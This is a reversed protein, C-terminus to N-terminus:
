DSGPSPSHSVLSDETSSLYALALSMFIPDEIGSLRLNCRHCLLGRVKGTTHSHDIKPATLYERCIACEGRQRVWMEQVQDSTLGYRTKINWQARQEPTTKKNRTEREYKNACPKCWSHRGKVGSPQLHFDELRKEVFCRRCTKSEFVESM